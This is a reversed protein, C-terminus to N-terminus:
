VQSTAWSRQADAAREDIFKALEGLAVMRPARQSDHLRFTPFELRNLSALRNARRVDLNRYELCVDNLRVAPTRYTALLALETKTM